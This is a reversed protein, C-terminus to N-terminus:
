APEPEPEVDEFDPPYVLEFEGEKGTDLFLDLAEDMAKNDYATETSDVTEKYFLKGAFFALVVLKKQFVTLEEGKLFLDAVQKAASILINIMPEILSQLAKKVLLKLEM